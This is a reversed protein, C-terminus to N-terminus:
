KVNFIPISIKGVGNIVEAIDSVDILKTNKLFVV